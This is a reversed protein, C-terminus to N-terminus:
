KFYFELLDNPNYTQILNNDDDVINDFEFTKLGPIYFESNEPLVNNDDYECECEISCNGQKKDFWNIKVSNCTINVLNLGNKLKNITVDLDEQIYYDYDYDNDYYNDYDYKIFKSSAFLICCGIYKM